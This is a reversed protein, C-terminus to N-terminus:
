WKQAEWALNLFNKSSAISRLGEDTVENKFLNLVTINKCNESESLAIIGEDKIENFELFIATVTKIKESKVIQKLDDDNLEKERLDLESNEVNLGEDILQDIDKEAM